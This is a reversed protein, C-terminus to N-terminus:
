VALLCAARAGLRHLFDSLLDISANQAQLHERTEWGLQVASNLSAEAAVTDGAAVAKALGMRQITTPKGMIILFRSM